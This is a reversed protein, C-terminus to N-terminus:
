GPGTTACWRRRAPWSPWPWGAARRPSTGAGHPAVSLLDEGPAALSPSPAKAQADTAVPRGDSGVSAVAVVGPLAAPYVAGGSSLDSRDTSAVVLVDRAARTRSRAVCPRGSRRVDRVAVTVVTAGSDVAARIGSPSEAPVDVHNEDATVRVPLIRAAPAVGALGAGHSRGRPSCGPSSRATGPVTTTRM